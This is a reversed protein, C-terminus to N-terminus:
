TDVCFFFFFSATAVSGSSHRSIGGREGRRRTVFFPEARHRVVVSAFAARGYRSRLGRRSVRGHVVIAASSAWVVASSASGRDGATGGRRERDHQLQRYM